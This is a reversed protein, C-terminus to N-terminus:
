LELSPLFRWNAQIRKKVAVEGSQHSVDYDIMAELEKV